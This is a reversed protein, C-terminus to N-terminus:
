IPCGPFQSKSEKNVCNTTDSLNCIRLNFSLFPIRKLHSNTKLRIAIVM